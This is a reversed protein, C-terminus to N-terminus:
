HTAGGQEREAKTPHPKEKEQFIQVKINGEHTVEYNQPQWEDNKLFSPQVWYSELMVQHIELDEAEM